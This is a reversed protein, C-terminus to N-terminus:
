IAIDVDAPRDAMVAFAPEFDAEGAIRAVTLQRGLARAWFRTV